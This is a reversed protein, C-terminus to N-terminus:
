TKKLENKCKPKAFSPLSLHCVLQGEACRPARGLLWGGVAEPGGGLVATAAPIRHQVAFRLGGRGEM